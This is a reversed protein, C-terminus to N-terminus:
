RKVLNKNLIYYKKCTSPKHGLMKATQKVADQDTGGRSSADKFLRMAGATRIDKIQLASTAGHIRRLLQTVGDRTAKGTLRANRKRISRKLADHLVGDTVDCQRTVGSKAKYTFRVRKGPGLKVHERQLSLAGYSGTPRVSAGGPRMYCLAIMRLALADDHSAHTPRALISATHARIRKFDLTEARKKRKARRTKKFREHYYYHKKGIADMATAQLKANPGFVCVDTYAPPIGLKKARTQDADSAPRGNKTYVGRTRTIICSM